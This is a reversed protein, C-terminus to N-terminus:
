MYYIGLSGDSNAIGKKGAKALVEIPSASLKESLSLAQNGLIIATDPNSYKLEWGMANLDIIKSTDEKDKKLLTRLSDIKRNQSFSFSHFICLLLCLILRFIITRNKM